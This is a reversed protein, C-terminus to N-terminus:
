FYNDIVLLIDSPLIHGPSLITELNEVKKIFDLPISIITKCCSETDAYNLLLTKEEKRSIKNNNNHLNDHYIIKMLNARIIRKSKTYFTYRQGKILSKEM